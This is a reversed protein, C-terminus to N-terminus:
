QESEKEDGSAGGMSESARLLFSCEESEWPEGIVTCAREFQDGSSTEATQRADDILELCSKQQNATPAEEGAIGHLCQDDYFRKCEDIETSKVSGCSVAAECRAHEIQRCQEVAVADTTCAPLLPFAGFLAIVSVWRLSLDM